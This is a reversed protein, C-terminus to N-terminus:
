KPQATGGLAAVLRQLGVISAAILVADLCHASTLLGLGSVAHVSAILISYVPLPYIAAAGGYGDDLWAQAALLYVVGDPNPVPDFALHIVSLVFSTLM